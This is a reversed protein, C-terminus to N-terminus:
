PYWIEHGVKFISARGLKKSIQKTELKPNQFHQITDSRIPGSRVPGDTGIETFM